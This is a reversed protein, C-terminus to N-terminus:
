EEPIEKAHYDARFLSDLERILLYEAAAKATIGFRRKKDALFQLYDYHHRPISIELIKEADPPTRPRGRGRKSPPSTPQDSESV